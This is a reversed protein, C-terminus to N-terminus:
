FKGCPEDYRTTQPLILGVGPHQDPRHRFNCIFMNKKYFSGGDTTRQPNGKRRIRFKEERRGEGNTFTSKWFELFCQFLRDQFKDVLRNVAIAVANRFHEDCKM